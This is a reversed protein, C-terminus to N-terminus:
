EQTPPAASLTYVHDPSIVKTIAEGVLTSPADGDHEVDSNIFAVITSRSEPEYLALTQYGPLSGNHGIWGASKFLGLGYAIPGSGGAVSAARERAM